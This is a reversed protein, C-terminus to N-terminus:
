CPVHILDHQYIIHSQRALSPLDAPMSFPYQISVLGIYKVWLFCIPARNLDLPSYSGASLCCIWCRILPYQTLINLCPHASSFVFRLSILWGDRGFFFVCWRLGGPGVAPLYCCSSFQFHCKIHPTAKLLDSESHIKALRRLIPYVPACLLLTICILWLRTYSSDPRASTDSLCWPTSPVPHQTLM